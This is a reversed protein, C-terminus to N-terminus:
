TFRFAQESREDMPVNSPSASDRSRRRRRRGAGNRAEPADQVGGSAEAEADAEDEDEDDEDDEDDVPELEQLQDIPAPKAVAGEKPRPRRAGPASREALKQGVDDPDHNSDGM